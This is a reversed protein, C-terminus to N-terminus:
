LMDPQWAEPIAAPFPALGLCRRYAAHVWAAQTDPPFVLDTLSIEQGVEERRCHATLEIGNARIGVDTVLVPVGVVTASVPLGAEDEFVAHFAMIQEDVDYADVTMVAVLRDLAHLDTM